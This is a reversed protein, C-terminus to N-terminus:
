VSLAPSPLSAQLGSLFSLQHLQLFPHQPLYWSSPALVALEVRLCLGEASM